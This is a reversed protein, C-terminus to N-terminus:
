SSSRRNKFLNTTKTLFYCSCCFYTVIVIAIVITDFFVRYIDVNFLKPFLMFFIFYM